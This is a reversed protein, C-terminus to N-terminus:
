RFQGKYRPQGRGICLLLSCSICLNYVDPWYATPIGHHHYTARYNYRYHGLTSTCPDGNASGNLWYEAQFLPSGAGAELKCAVSDEKQKCTPGSYCTFCSGGHGQCRYLQSSLQMRGGGALMAMGGEGANGIAIDLRSQELILESVEAPNSGVCGWSSMPRAQPLKWVNSCVM